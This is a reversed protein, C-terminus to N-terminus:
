TKLEKKFESQAKKIGAKIDKLAESSASAYDNLRTRVETAKEKLATVKTEYQHKVEGSAHVAKNQIDDIKTDWAKLKQSIKDIYAERSSM